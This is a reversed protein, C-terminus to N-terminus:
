WFFEKSKRVYFMLIYLSQYYQGELLSRCFPNGDGRCPADEPQPHFFPKLYPTSSHIYQILLWPYCVLLPGGAQPNTSTNVAGWRLFFITMNRFTWLQRPSPIFRRYLRLLPFSCSIQYTSHLSRYLDPDSFVTALSNALYLNCTTPICFTLHSLSHETVYPSHLKKRHSLFRFDDVPFLLKTCWLIHWCNLSYLTNTLPHWIYNQSTAPTIDNSHIPMCWILLFTIIWFVSKIFIHIYIM